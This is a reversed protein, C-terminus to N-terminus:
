SHHHGVFKFETKISRLILGVGKPTWLGRWLGAHKPDLFQAYRQAWLIRASEAYRNYTVNNVHGVCRSFECYANTYLCHYGQDRKARLNVGRSAATM